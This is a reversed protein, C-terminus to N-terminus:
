FSGGNPTKKYGKNEAIGLCDSPVLTTISRLQLSKPIFLAWGFMFIRIPQFYVSLFVWTIFGGQATSNLISWVLSHRPTKKPARKKRDLDNRISTILLELAKLVWILLPIRTKSFNQWVTTWKDTQSSRFSSLIDSRSQIGWGIFFM